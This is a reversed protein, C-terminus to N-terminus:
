GIEQIIEVILEFVIFIVLLSLAIRGGPLQPKFAQSYGLKYRGRWVMLVPIFGLLLVCGIGGAYGLAKLFIGPNISAILFPPVYIILCLGLKKMGEKKVKLADSLFDLLGLTVGLFSTTLAFFAFFQGIITIMQSKLFFRLPQVATWGQSRADLLGNAGEVPVIGLILAEWIIYCILPIATGYWITKRVKASDRDLYTNLSPIIGQYSFSTFMVPLALVTSTWNRSTLRSVDVHKVGLVVFLIFSFVLGIMLIFNIRDVAKTGAYVFVSFIATFLGIGVAPPLGSPLLLQFFGGGGSVYAITLSYFLFLYLIWATLKGFRGLLHFAMSVINADEPMWLCVELLLLGTAASFLWCILYIVSSPLFGGLGTVVPLALMGAGIATGGVLLTGGFTKGIKDSIKM